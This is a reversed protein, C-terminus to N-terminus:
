SKLQLQMYISGLLRLLMRIQIFYDRVFHGLANDILKSYQSVFMQILM